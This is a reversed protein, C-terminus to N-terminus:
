PVGYKHVTANLHSRYFREANLIRSTTRIRRLSPLPPARHGGPPFCPVILFGRRIRICRCMRNYPGIGVDARQSAVFEGFIESFLPVDQPRVSDDAGVPLASVQQLPRRSQRGM